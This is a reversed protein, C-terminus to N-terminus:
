YYDAANINQKIVKAPVGVAICGPPISSIVVATAGIVSSEGITVNGLIRAGAGIYVNNSIVPVEVIRSRGGITVGQGIICNEGIQANKHIVVGIGGYAFRSGKGIKVTPPLYSNFVLFQVYFVIKALWGLKYKILTNSLAHFNVINM